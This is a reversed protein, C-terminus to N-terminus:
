GSVVLPDGFFGALNLREFVDLVCGSHGSLKFPTNAAIAARRAALLLQAGASDIETVGALDLTLGKPNGALAQRLSQAVEAARYITLDGELALTAASM